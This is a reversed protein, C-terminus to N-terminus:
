ETFFCVGDAPGDLLIKHRRIIGRGILFQENGEFTDIQVEFERGLRPIALIGRSLPMEFKQGSVTIGISWQEEPFEWGYLELALYTAWPVLVEGGYGTDLEVLEETDAHFKGGLHESACVLLM